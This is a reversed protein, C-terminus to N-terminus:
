STGEIEGLHLVDSGEIVMRVNRLRDMSQENFSFVKSIYTKGERRLKFFEAEDTM